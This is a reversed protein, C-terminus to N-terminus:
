RSVAELADAAARVSDVPEAGPPLGVRGRALAISLRDAVEGPDLRGAPLWEGLSAAALRRANDPRDFGAALVLQPTGAALARATTGIGGHHVVAAMKPMADRFPLRPYWHVGPPLPDPVLHRDRTVVVAPRGVRVAAAVATRYFDPGTLRGSSGTILVADPEVEAPVPEGQDDEDALVFGVLRAGPPAPHGAADFWDPWTGMNVQASRLWGAWDPVPALGLERRLPEIGPGFIDRYERAARGLVALHFPSAALCVAPAGVLEAATLLSLSTLSLGVLVTQGARHLRRLARCEFRFQAFFGHREYYERVRGLDRRRGLDNVDAGDDAQGTEDAGLTDVAVFRLGARRARRSYRAHSLLAVDHGRRRLERGVRIVPLVDGDTGHATILFTAV